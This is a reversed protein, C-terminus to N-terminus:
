TKHFPDWILELVRTVM